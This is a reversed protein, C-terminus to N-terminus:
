PKTYKLQLITAFEKKPLTNLLAKGDSQSLKKELGEHILNWYDHRRLLAVPWVETPLGKIWVRM